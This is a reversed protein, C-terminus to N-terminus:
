FKHDVVTLVALKGNVDLRAAVLIQGHRGDFDERTAARLDPDGALQQALRIVRRKVRGLLGFGVPLMEVSQQGLSDNWRRQQLSWLGCLRTPRQRLAHKLIYLLIRHRYGILPQEICNPRLQRRMGSRMQVVVPSLTPYAIHLAHVIERWRGYAVAVPRQRAAEIPHKPLM